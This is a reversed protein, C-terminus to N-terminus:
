NTRTRKKKLVRAKKNVFVSLEAEAEALLEMPDEGTKITRSFGADLKYSEYNGLNVNRSITIWVKDGDNVLENEQSAKRKTKAVMEM